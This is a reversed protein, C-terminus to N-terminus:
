IAHDDQEGTRFRVAHAVDLVFIKGDGITDTRGHLQIAELIAPVLDDSVVMEVRIKPVFATNYEAGRYIETHGKQRGFGKAESITMGQVGVAALADRVEDLKYPKIIAIILKL